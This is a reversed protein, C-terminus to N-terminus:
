CISTPRTRRSASAARRPPLTDPGPQYYNGVFAVRNGAHEAAAPEVRWNFVLTNAVVVDSRGGKCGGVQINREGCNAVLDHHFSVRSAGDGILVGMSHPGNPHKSKGLGNAILCWQATIDHSRYWVTLTEDGGWSPSCLDVDGTRIRLQRPRESHVM